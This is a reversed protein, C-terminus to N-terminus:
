KSAFRTMPRTKAGILFPIVPDEQVLGTVPEIREGALSGEVQIPEFSTGEGRTWVPSTELSTGLFFGVGRKSTLQFKGRPSKGFRQPSPRTNPSALAPELIQVREVHPQNEVSKTATQFEELRLPRELQTKLHEMMWQAIDLNETMIQRAVVAM